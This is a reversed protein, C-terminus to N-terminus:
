RGLHRGLAQGAERIRFARVIDIFGSTMAWVGVFILLTYARVVFFQESVWFTIKTM